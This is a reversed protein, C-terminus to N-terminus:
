ARKTDYYQNLYQKTIRVQIFLRDERSNEIKMKDMDNKIQKMVVQNFYEDNNLIDNREYVKQDVDNKIALLVNMIEPEYESIIPKKDNTKRSENEERVRKHLRAYKVDGNYKKRIVNNKIALEKLKKM